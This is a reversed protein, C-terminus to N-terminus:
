EKPILKEMEKSLEYRHLNKAIMNENKDILCNAPIGTIKYLKYNDTKAM